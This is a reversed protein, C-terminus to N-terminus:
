RGERLPNPDATPEPDRLHGLLGAMEVRARHIRSKVTGVPIELAAAVEAYDLEQLDHLVLVARHEESLEALARRVADARTAAEASEDPGRGTAPAERAEELPRNAHRSRRRLVDHSANIAVRHFWTSLRADGRFNKLARMASIFVDQTADMADDPDGCMRLTVAYVRREYRELLIEFAREDGATYREILEQDPPEQM